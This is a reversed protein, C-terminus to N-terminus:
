NKHFKLIIDLIKQASEEPTQKDTDIIIEPHKPKEYPVNVGPVTQSKGALGKKYIQKPAQFTERREAERSMCVNLPCRLYVEFFRAIQERAQERYRRRNGTADLVVNVGNKTLLRAVFVLAAYVMDREEESYSPKPTVAHRLMDISVLQAHIRESKLKELLLNAVTSKGSGPLGTVWVCWGEQNYM